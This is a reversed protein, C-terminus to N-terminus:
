CMAIMKMVNYSIMIIAVTGKLGNDFNSLCSLICSKFKALLHITDHRDFHKPLKIIDHNYCWSISHYFHGM